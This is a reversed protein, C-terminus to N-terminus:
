KKLLIEYAITRRNLTSIYYQSKQSLEESFINDITKEAIRKILLMVGVFLLISLLVWFGYKEIINIIDINM